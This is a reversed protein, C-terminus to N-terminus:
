CIFNFTIRVTTPHLFTVFDVSLHGTIGRNKCAITVRRVAEVLQEPPVSTQPCTIGWVNYPSSHLQDGTYQITAAGTPDIFIGVTLPTVSDSPPTGEIVGGICPPAPCFSHTNAYNYIYFSAGGEKLFQDLFAKWDFFLTKDM